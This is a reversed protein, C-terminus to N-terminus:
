SSIILSSPCGPVSTPLYLDIQPHKWWKHSNWTRGWLGKAPLSVSVLKCTQHMLCLCCFPLITNSVDQQAKNLYRWLATWGDSFWHRGQLTPQTEQRWEELLLLPLKNHFVVRGFCSVNGGLCALFCTRRNSSNGEWLGLPLGQDRASVSTHWGLGQRFPAVQTSPM